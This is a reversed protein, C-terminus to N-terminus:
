TRSSDTDRPSLEVARPCARMVRLANRFMADRGVNGKAVAVFGRIARAMMLASM